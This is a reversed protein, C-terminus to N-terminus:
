ADGHGQETELHLTRGPAPAGNWAVAEGRHQLPLGLSFRWEYEAFGAAWNGSQFSLFARNVHAHAFNPRIEIARDFMAAAAAREGLARRCDGLNNLAEVHNPDRAVISELIEAAEAFRGMMKLAHALNNAAANDTPAIARAQRASEAAEVHRHLRNLAFARNSHAHAISPNVALARDFAAIAQEFAGSQVLANGYELQIAADKPRADAVPQLLRAAEAHNGAKTERVAALRAAVADTLNQAQTM